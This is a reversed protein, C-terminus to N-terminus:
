NCIIRSSQWEPGSAASNRYELQTTGVVSVAMPVNSRNVKVATGTVVVEDLNVTDQLISRINEQAHLAASKLSIILLLILVRKM